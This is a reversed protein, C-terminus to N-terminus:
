EEAEDCTFADVIPEIIQENFLKWAEDEDSAEIIFPETPPNPANYRNTFEFQPM